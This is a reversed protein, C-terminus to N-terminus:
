SENKQGSILNLANGVISEGSRQGGNQKEERAQNIMQKAVAMNHDFKNKFKEEIKGNKFCEIMGRINKPNWGRLAWETLIKRWLFIDGNNGIINEVEKKSAPNLSYHFVDRYVSVSESVPVTPKKQRHAINKNKQIQETDTDIRTQELPTCDLSKDLCQGLVNKNKERQKRKNEAENDSIPQRKNWNLFVISKDLPGLINLGSLSKLTSKVQTQTRRIRWSIDDASFNITGEKDEESALCMLYILTRFQSDSIKRMKPDNVIDTWLRFWKM